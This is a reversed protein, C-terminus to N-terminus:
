NWDRHFEATWVQRLCDALYGQDSNSVDLEGHRVPQGQDDYGYRWLAQSIQGDVCLVVHLADVVDMDGSARRQAPSRGAPDHVAIMCDATVAAWQPPGVHLACARLLHEITQDEVLEVVAVQRDGALYVVPNVDRPGGGDRAAAVKRDWTEEVLWDLTDRSMVSVTDTVGGVDVPGPRATTGDRQRGM